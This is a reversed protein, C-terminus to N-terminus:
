AVDAKRLTRCMVKALRKPSWRWLSRIQRHAAHQLRERRIAVHTLLHASSSASVFPDYRIREALIALDHEFGLDDALRELNKKLHVLRRPRLPRLLCVTYFCDKIRKRVRHFNETSPVRHVVRYAQRMRRWLRAVGKTIAKGLPLVLGLGDVRSRVDHLEQLVQRRLTNAISAQSLPLLSRSVQEIQQLLEADDTEDRLKTLTASLMQEDRVSSLQRTTHAVQEGVVRGQLSGLAYYLLRVITRVRKGAKRAAHIAEAEMEVTPATVALLRQAEDIQELLIQRLSSGLRPGTREPSLAFAM